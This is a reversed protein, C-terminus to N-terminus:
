PTNEIDLYHRQQFRPSCIALFVLDQQGTNTIRQSCMPPIVVVDGAKVTTAPLQGIEVLGSGELIVYRESTDILQHWHTVAGPLVRARAISVEPDNESNSLETIYCNEDTLYESDPHYPYTCAEM